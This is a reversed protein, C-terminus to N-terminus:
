PINIKFGSDYNLLECSNRSRVNNNWNIILQSDPFLANFKNFILTLWKTNNNDIRHLEINVTETRCPGPNLAILWKFMNCYFWNANKMTSAGKIELMHILEDFYVLPSDSGAEIWLKRM